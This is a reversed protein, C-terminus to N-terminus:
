RVGVLTAPFSLLLRVKSIAGICYAYRVSLRQGHVNAFLQGAEPPM